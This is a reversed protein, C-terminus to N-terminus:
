KANGAELTAERYRTEYITQYQTLWTQLGKSNLEDLYQQWTANDAANKKGQVFDSEWKRLANQTNQREAKTDDDEQQTMVLDPLEYKNEAAKKMFNHYGAANLSFRYKMWDTMEATTCFEGEAQPNVTPSPKSWTVNNIQAFPDDIVDIWAEFGLYSKADPDENWQWNVGEEGYRVRISGEKSCLLMLIEWCADVVGDYEAQETIFTSRAGKSLNVKSYGYLDLPEYKYLNEAGETTWVTTCHGIIIGHEYNNLLPRVDRQEWNTTEMSMLGEDVLKKIYILAERYKDSTFPTTLQMGDETLGFYNDYDYGPCFMNIIWWISDSGLVSRGCSILPWSNRGENVCCQQKFAKLVNYLEEPNTPADMGVKELWGTNIHAIFPLVDVYSREATPFPIIEGYENSAREIFATIQAQTFSSEMADWWNKSKERDMLMDTLNLFYRSGGVDEGYIQWPISDFQVLMHPLAEGAMIQGSLQTAYDSPSAAYTKFTLNHGTQEEIWTTLSNTEYDEVNMDLPIGITINKPAGDDIIPKSENTGPQNNCGAFLGIVCIASLVIAILKKM